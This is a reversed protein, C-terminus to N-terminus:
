GVVKLIPAIRKSGSPEVGVQPYDNRKTQHPCVGANMRKGYNCNMCLVQFGSPFGNRSLWNYTHYGATNGKKNKRYIAKRFSAGDNKIHDLTLFKAETEGCCACINGGYAAFTADRVRKRKDASYKKGKALSKEHNAFYYKKARIKFCEKCESHLGIRGSSLAYFESQDKANGCKTCTKM